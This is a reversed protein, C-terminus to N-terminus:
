FAQGFSFTFWTGLAGRGDAALPFGFDARLTERDFQPFLARLGLGVSHRYRFSFDGSRGPSPAGFVSGGDYFLVGGVHLTWINLPRTRYEVNARLLNRGLDNTLPYGRVLSSDFSYAGRDLDDDRLALVVKAHLRGIWFPPSVNRLTLSLTKNVWPGVGSEEIGLQYRLTGSASVTLLDNRLEWTYSANALLEVFNQGSQRLNQAFRLELGSTPGIGFNESLALTDVNRLRVFRTPRTGYRLFFASATESRPLVADKYWSRARDWAPLQEVAPDFGTPLAYSLDYVLLGWSLDHKIQQGLSRTLSLLGVLRRADYVYPLHLRQDETEGDALPAAITGLAVGDSRQVYFRRQRIDAYGDVAFSWRTSLPITPRDIRLRAYLGALAGSARTNQWFGKGAAPRAADDGLWGGAPVSGDIIVDFYQLLRLRSGFLRQDYYRQGLALHDRLVFGDLDLQSLKIHLSVRKNRGLFNEETPTFDLGQVLSGTQQYIMNLRLSWLDKTVVLLVVKRPDEHKCAVARVVGLIFLTRLNREGEDILKADFRDGPRQLLEQRVVYDRTKVHLWNLFGPWPDTKSIVDEREILIRAILKGAPAEDLQLGHRRLGWQVLEREYKKRVDLKLAQAPSALALVLLWSLLSLLGLPSLPRPM